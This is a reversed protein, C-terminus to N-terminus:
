EELLFGEVEGAILDVSELLAHDDDVEHLTVHPRDAAYRRSTTVPM